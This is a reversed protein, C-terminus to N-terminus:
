ITRSRGPRIRHMLMVDINGKLVTLPTRLEHSVDMIFHQQEDFAKELRELMADFTDALKVEAPQGQAHIRRRLDSARIEAAVDIVQQLPRVAGRSLWLAAAVALITAAIGEPILITLL